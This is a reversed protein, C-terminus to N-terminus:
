QGKGNEESQSTAQKRQRLENLIVKIEAASRTRSLEDEFHPEHPQPTKQESAFQAAQEAAAHGVGRKRAARVERDQRDFALAVDLPARKEIVSSEGDSKVFRQFIGWVEGTEEDVGNGVYMFPKIEYSDKLGVPLNVRRAADEIDFLQVDKLPHVSSQHEQHSSHSQEPNSKSM